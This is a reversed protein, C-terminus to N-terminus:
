IPLAESIAGAISGATAGFTKGIFGAVLGSLIGAHSDLGQQVFFAEIDSAPAQPGKIMAQAYRGHLTAFSV